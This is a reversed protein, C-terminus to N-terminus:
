LGLVRETLDLLADPSFPKTMYSDAGADSGLQADQKQGKATLIVIYVDELALEQKVVRCVEFGNMGPMMIDLFVLQPQHDRIKQLGENGDAASLIQVGDDEYDELLREILLRVHAEDDVILVQKGVNM